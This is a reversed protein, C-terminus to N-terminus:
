ETESFMLCQETERNNMGDPSLGLGVKNFSESFQDWYAPKNLFAYKKEDEPKDEQRTIRDYPKLTDTTQIDEPFDAYQRVAPATLRAIQEAISQGQTKCPRELTAIKNELGSIQQRLQQNVANLESIQGTLSQEAQRYETSDAVFVIVGVDNGKKDKLLMMKTRASFITGDQRLHEISKQLQGQRKVEDIMLFLDKDLQSESHISNIKKGIMDKCSGFGYMKAMAPNAFHVIGKLDILAVGENIHEAILALRHVTYEVRQLDTLINNM